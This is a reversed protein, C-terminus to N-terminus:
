PTVPNIYGTVGQYSIHAWNEKYAIVDATAGGPLKGAADGNQNATRRINVSDGATCILQGAYAAKVAAAPTPSPTSSPTVPPTTAPATTAIPEQTATLTPLATVATPSPSVAPTHSLTDEPITCGTLSLFILAFAM